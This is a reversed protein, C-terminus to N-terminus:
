LFRVKVRGNSGSQLRSRIARALTMERLTSDRYASDIGEITSAIDAGEIRVIRWGPRVGAKAAASNAEVATVLAQGGIVGLDIGTNGEGVPTQGDVEEYLDGPIIGFHTQHLRGLMGRMADRADAMTTAREVKPRFDDHAAQWDVGGLKPDWHNDRVTTWIK